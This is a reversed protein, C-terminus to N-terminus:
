SAHASRVAPPPRNAAPLPAGAVPPAIPARDLSDLMKRWLHQDPELALGHELLVRAPASEGRHVLLLALATRARRHQPSHDVAAALWSLADTTDGLGLANVGADYFLGADGDFLAIATRYDTQAEASPGNARREKGLLYYGRYSTPARDRMATFASENDRWVPITRLTYTTGAIVLAAAVGALPWRGAVLSWHGPVLSRRSSWMTALAGGILLCVGISPAYLTRDALVVGTHLVLNSVPAFTAASFVAAWTWPSPRRAHLVVVAAAAAALVAGLIV